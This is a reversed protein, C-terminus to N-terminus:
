VCHFFQEPDPMELRDNQPPGNRPLSGSRIAGLCFGLAQNLSLLELPLSVKAAKLSLSTLLSKGFIVREEFTQPSPKQLIRYHEVIM